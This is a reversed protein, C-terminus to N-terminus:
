INLDYNFVLRLYIYYYFIWASTVQLYFVDIVDKITPYFSKKILLENRNKLKQQPINIPKTKDGDDTILLQDESLTNHM